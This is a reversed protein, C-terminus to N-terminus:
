RWRTMIMWVGAAEEGERGRESEGDERARVRAQKISRM